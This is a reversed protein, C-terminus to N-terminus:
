ASANSAEVFQRHLENALQKVVKPKKFEEVRASVSSQMMQGNVKFTVQVLVMDEPFTAVDAM